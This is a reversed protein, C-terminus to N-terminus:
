AASRYSEMKRKPKGDVQIEGEDLTPLAKELEELYGVFTWYGVWLNGDEDVTTEEPIPYFPYPFDWKEYIL